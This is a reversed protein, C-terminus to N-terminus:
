LVWLYLSIGKNIPVGYDGRASEVGVEELKCLAKEAYGPYSIEYGYVKKLFEEDCVMGKKILNLLEEKNM